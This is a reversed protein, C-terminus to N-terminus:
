DWLNIIMLPLLQMLTKARHLSGNWWCSAFTICLLIRTRPKASKSPLLYIFLLIPDSILIPTPCLLSRVYFARKKVPLEGELMMGKSPSRSCHFSRHLSQVCSNHEMRECLILVFHLGLPVACRPTGSLIPNASTLHSKFYCNWPDVFM